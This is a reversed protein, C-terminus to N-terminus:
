TSSIEKGHNDLMASLSTNNSGGNPITVPSIQELLLLGQKESILYHYYVPALDHSSVPESVVKTFVGEYIAPVSPHAEENLESNYVHDVPITMGKQMETVLSSSSAIMFPSAEDTGIYMSSSTTSQSNLASIAGFIVFSFVLVSTCLKLGRKPLRLWLDKNDIKKLNPKVSSENHLKSHGIGTPHSLQIENEGIKNTNYRESDNQLLSLIIRRMQRNMAVYLVSSCETVSLYSLLQLRSVADVILSKSHDPFGEVLVSLNLPGNHKYLIRLVAIEESKM